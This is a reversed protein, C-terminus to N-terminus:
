LFALLACFVFWMALALKAIFEPTSEAPKM